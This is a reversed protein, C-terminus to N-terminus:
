GRDSDKARRAAALLRVTAWFRALHPLARVREASERIRAWALEKELDAVM